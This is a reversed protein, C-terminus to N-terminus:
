RKGAEVAFLVPLVEDLIHQDEGDNAQAGDGSDVAYCRLYGAVEVDDLLGDGVVDARHLNRAVALVGAISLEYDSGAWAPGEVKFEGRAGSPDAVGTEADWGRM